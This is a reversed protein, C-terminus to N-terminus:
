LQGARAAMADLASKDEVLLLQSNFLQAVCFLAFLGGLVTIVLGPDFLGGFVGALATSIPWTGQTILRRVSFVRGQLENPTQIQWIAQSHANMVPNTASLIFGMTATLFLYPSLGIVLQAVAWFVMPVIVGYVRRIKLGGWTSIFVGGVVGGIGAVSSYLALATEYSFGRVAWDAAVNFKLILLILLSSFGGIFNSLTFTGLLWLMPRRHWIYLAGVKVDGWLSKKLAVTETNQDAHHPSPIMLFVIAASALMFTIADIAIALPAGDKISSLITGLAGSITGQRALAPLSIIAAALAPSLIGSLAWMTQMMGNARPLQEKSVLMAYSTDFAAGHYASALSSLVGITVLMWVRLGQTAMLAMLALSLLGNLVDAAIMTHKRDHRDAWAGALPAGFILPVAYALNFAALAAALLPKQEPLRYLTQTLWINVAFITLASGFVSISQTLWVILFTRFGNKPPQYSM